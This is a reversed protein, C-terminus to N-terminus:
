RNESAFSRVNRAHSRVASARSAPPMATSWNRVSRRQATRVVIASTRSAPPTSHAMRATLWQTRESRAMRRPSSRGALRKGASSAVPVTSM